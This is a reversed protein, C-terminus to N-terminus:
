TVVEVKTFPPACLTVNRSYWYPPKYALPILEEYSTLFGRPIPRMSYGDKTISYDEGTETIKFDRIMGFGIATKKGLGALGELLYELKEPDANAYFVVRKAPVYPISIIFNRFYGSGIHLSKVRLKEWDLNKQHFRKYIKTVKVKLMSFAKEPNETDILSVSARYIRVGNAELPKIPFEPGYEFNVVRKTPLTRYREGLTARLWLHAILGDFNLYPYSLAIPTTLRFEVKLPTFNSPRSLLESRRKDV